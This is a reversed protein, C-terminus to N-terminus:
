LGLMREIPLKAKNIIEESLKIEYQEKKLSEYVDELKTLKMNFCIQANGLSYFEADPREKKLRYIHGEETGIIFKKAKEEKVYKIMGSTSAVKDALETVEPLCEPHVVIKADPHANKANMIDEKTFKHHVYCRGNHLIIEKEDKINKKVWLGLNKDPLFVIRKEPIKKVIDVANASTVCYDLKAKTEATTNVYGVIAAGPYKKRYEDIEEPTICDALQCGANEKPLLVKKEPSLIKATEAMFKVGCFVIIKENVNVCKRSLELSDGTFDAIDQIEPRQYNHAVIIASKKKKLEKIKEALDDNM